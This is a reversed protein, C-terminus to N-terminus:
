SKKRKRVRRKVPVLLGTGQEIYAAVKRLVEGDRHRGVLHRNCHTCLLGRIERTIHNHDVALRRPFEDQHRECVACCYNQKELLEEYQEPTIGYERKLASKRSSANTRAKNGDKEKWNKIRAYNCASCQSARNNRDRRLFFEEIPKEENCVTCTKM